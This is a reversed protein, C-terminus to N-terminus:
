AYANLKIQKNSSVITEAKVSHISFVVDEQNLKEMLRLMDGYLMASDSLIVDTIAHSRIYQRLSEDQSKMDNESFTFPYFEDNIEKRVLAQRIDSVVDDSAFILIHRSKKNRYKLFPRFCWFGFRYFAALVAKFVIAFRIVFAYL